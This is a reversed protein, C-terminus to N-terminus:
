RPSSGGSGPERVYEGVAVREGSFARGGPAVPDGGARIGEAPARWSRSGIWLPGSARHRALCPGVPVGDPVVEAVPRVVKFGARDGQPLEEGGSGSVIFDGARAEVAPAVRDALVDDNRRGVADRDVEGEFDLAVCCRVGDTDPLDGPKDGPQAVAVEADHDRGGVEGLLDLFLYSLVAM